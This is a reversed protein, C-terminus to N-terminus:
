KKSNSSSLNALQQTLYNSTSQMQAVLSDMATFQATYRQSVKEMRADLDDFEKELKKIQQNLTDVRQTLLGTGSDLNNKLLGELRTSLRGTKGLVSDALSPQEARTKEYAASDFSLTGDKAISIGLAKLDSVNDGGFIARLQAQLGRVMADGTLASATKTESNYNSASKLTGLAANYTSVFASLSTKAATSDAAVALNFSKGEEAKTLNITVGEVLDTFTNSSGTRKQGDILVEADVAEIVTVMRTPNDPDQAPDGSQPTALLMLRNADPDEGPEPVAPTALISIQGATGSETSTLVLHQGKDSTIVSATVGKGDVVRNIQRALAALNMDDAVEIDWTRDDIALALTGAGVKEDAQFAASALKQATALQKVEIQYSGGTASSTTSATFGAGEAVTTKWSPTSIAETVTKLSSQVNGLASKITGLASLKANIAVGQNNIRNEAPAREATVLQSVITPIDLGSGVAYLSSM